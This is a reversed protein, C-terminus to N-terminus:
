PAQVMDVGIIRADGDDTNSTANVVFRWYLTSGASCTGAPTVATSVGRYNNNATTLTISVNVGTGWTSSPASGSPRCQASFAGSFVHASSDVDNITLGFLYTTGAYPLGVLEGYFISSNSDQCVFVYQLPGSNITAKSPDVCFTGDPTIGGASWSARTKALDVIGDEDPWNYTRIGTWAPFVWNVRNGSVTGIRLEGAVEFVISCEANSTGNARLICDDTLGSLGGGGGSTGTGILLFNTGNHILLHPRGSTIANNALTSGDHALITVAGLARINVTATGTNNTDVTLLVPQNTAYATIIPTADPCTYTDNLNTSRCFILGAGPEVTQRPVLQANALSTWILFSAILSFLKKM